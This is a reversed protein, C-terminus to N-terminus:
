GLCGIRIAQLVINIKGEVIGEDVLYNEIKKLEDKIKKEKIVIQDIRWLRDRAEVIEGINFETEITM